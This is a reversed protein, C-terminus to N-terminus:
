RAVRDLLLHLGDHRKQLLALAQELLSTPPLTADLQHVRQADSALEALFGERVRKHFALAESDFRDLKGKARLVRKLGVQPDLDLYLTLDPKITELTLQCLQQVLEFPMKRGYVQYALTSDTFRDCIVWADRQLAPIITTALNQARAALFLLLETKAAMQAHAPDLLFERIKQCIPDRTTCSGGPERTLVVDIGCQTLHMELSRALTSKGSGEGGEITIFLGRQSTKPATDGLGGLM